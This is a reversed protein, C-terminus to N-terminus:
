CSDTHVSVKGGNRYEVYCGANGEEPLYVARNPYRLYQFDYSTTLQMARGIGRATAVPAGFGPTVTITIGDITVTTANKKGQLQYYHLVLRMTDFINRSVSQMRQRNTAAYFKVYYNAGVAMIVFIVLTLFIVEIKTAANKKRFFPM